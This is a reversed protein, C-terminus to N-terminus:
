RAPRDSPGVGIKKQVAKIAAYADVLGHGVIDNPDSVGLTDLRATEKLADSVLRVYAGPRELLTPPPPAASRVLAVVGSVLPSAISTGAVYDDKVGEMYTPVIAFVDASPVAVSVQPGPLSFEWPIYHDGKHEVGGVLLVEHDFSRYMKEVNSIGWQWRSVNGASTSIVVNKSYAYRVAEWMVPESSPLAASVQVINAGHNVAWYISAAMTEYAWYLYPPDNMTDGDLARIPM